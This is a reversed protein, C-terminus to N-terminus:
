VESKKIIESLMHLEEDFLSYDGMAISYELDNILKGMYICNNIVCSRPDNVNGKILDLDYTNRYYSTKNNFYFKLWNLGDFYRVGALSFIILHAPDFCGLLHLPYGQSLIFKINSIKDYINTGLEKEPIAVLVSGKLDSVIAQIIPRIANHVTLPNCHITFVYDINLSSFEGDIKTLTDNYSKIQDSLSIRRNDYNAIYLKGRPSFESLIWELTNLYENYDWKNIKLGMRLLAEIEYIGSDLFVPREESFINRMIDNENLLFYKIDYLSLLIKDNYNYFSKLLPLFDRQSFASSYSYFAKIKEM